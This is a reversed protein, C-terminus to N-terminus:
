DPCSAPTHRRSYVYSILTLNRDNAKNKWAVKVTIKRQGSVPKEVFVSRQFVPGISGATPEEFGQTSPNPNFQLNRPEGHGGSIEVVSPTGAVNLNLWCIKSPSAPNDCDLSALSELPCQNDLEYGDRRNIVLDMAEQALYNATMQNQAFIGDAIGNAAIVLPGLVGILLITIAVLTEVITFGSAETRTNNIKKYIALM